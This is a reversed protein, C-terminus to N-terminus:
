AEMTPPLPQTFNDRTSFEADGIIRNAEREAEHVDDVRSTSRVNPDTPQEGARAAQKAIARIAGTTSDVEVAM